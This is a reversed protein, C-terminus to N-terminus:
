SRAKIAQQCKPLAEAYQARREDLFQQSFGKRYVMEGLSSLARGAQRCYGLDGFVDSKSTENMRQWRLLPAELVSSFYRGYRTADNMINSDDVVVELNLLVRLLDEALTKAALKESNSVM